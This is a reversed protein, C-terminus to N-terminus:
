KTKWDSDQDVILQDEHQPGQRSRQRKVRKAFLKVRGRVRDGLTSRPIGYLEAARRLTLERSRIRMVAECVQQLEEDGDVALAAADSVYLLSTM